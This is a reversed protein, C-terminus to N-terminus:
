EGDKSINNTSDKTIYLWPEFYSVIIARIDNEIDEITSYDMTVPIECGDDLVLSLTSDENLKWFYQGEIDYLIDSIDNYADDVYLDFNEREEISLEKLSKSFGEMLPTRMLHVYDQSLIHILCTDITFM